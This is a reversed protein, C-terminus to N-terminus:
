HNNKASRLPKILVNNRNDTQKFNEISQQFDEIEIKLSPKGKCKSM